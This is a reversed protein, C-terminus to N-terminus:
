LARMVSFIDYYGIFITKNENYVVSEFKRINTAKIRFYKCAWKLKIICLKKMSGSWRTKPFLDFLYIYTWNVFYYNKNLISKLANFFKWEPEALDAIGLYCITFFGSSKCFNLFLKYLLSPGKGNKCEKFINVDMHFCPNVSPTRGGLAGNSPMSVSILIALM